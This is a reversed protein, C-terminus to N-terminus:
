ASRKIITAHEYPIEIGAADLQAKVRQSMDMMINRHENPHCYVRLQLNVASDGLGTVHAWPAPEAHIRDDGETAKLVAALAADLNADYSVGFDMDLRRQEYAYYNRITSGFAAGNGVFYEIGDRTKLKTSFLGLAAVVGQEGNIQVEDGVSFPRFMMLMFGAAFDGLTDQLAFGLAVLMAAVVTGIWGLGMGLSSLAAVIVALMGFFGIVSGIFMALAQDVNPAKNAAKVATGSLRSVIWRGIIYIAFALLVKPVWEILGERLWSPLPALLEDIIPM